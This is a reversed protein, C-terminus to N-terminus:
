RVLTAKVSEIREGTVLRLLYSGSAVERGQADSGDWTRTHRGAPLRESALTTIWRGTLAYVDVRVYGPRALDFTIRTRPNFPNPHIGVIGAPSPPGLAVAQEAVTRWDLGDAAHALTYSVEPATALHPSCDHARFANEGGAVVSPVPWTQGAARATLRFEMPRSPASTTWTVTVTPGAAAGEGPAGRSAMRAEFSRLLTPTIAGDLWLALKSSPIGAGVEAFDGGIYLDGDKALLGYVCTAEYGAGIGDGLEYWAAGDWTAIGRAIGGQAETFDGGAFLDTSTGLLATVGHSLNEGALGEGLPDWGGGDWRAIRAAPAGGAHLFRGGAVLDGHWLTLAHATDDLGDGLAHWGSGDWRAIHAAEAGGATTFDGAAVLHGDYTALARVTNNAGAGLTWWRTGDWRAIRNAAVGGISTFQGAAILGDGHVHLAMVTGNAGGLGHWQGDQWRAIRSIPQTGSGYFGGGAFLEDRYVALAMVDHNLGDALRHWANGDWHLVNWSDDQDVLIGPLRIHRGGVVVSGDYQVLCNIRGDENLGGGLHVWEGDDWHVVCGTIEGGAFLGGLPQCTALCLLQGDFAGGLPESWSDVGCRRVEHDTAVYIADDYSALGRVNRDALPDPVAQFSGGAWLKALGHSEVGDAHDFWGGVYLYYGDQLLCSVNGDLNHRIYSEGDWGLLHLAGNGQFAGGFYIAGNFNEVAHIIGTGVSVGLCDWSQGIWHALSSVPSLFHGAAYLGGFYSCFGRVEGPIDGMPYWRRDIGDWQAVYEIPEGDVTRFNGGVVLRGYDHLANAEWGLGGALPDWYLGNWVAVHNAERGGAENFYGGVALLGGWDIMCKVAVGGLNSSMGMPQFGRSWSGDRWGAAKPEAAVPPGALAVAPGGALLILVCSISVFLRALM